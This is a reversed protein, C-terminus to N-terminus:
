KFVAKIRDQFVLTKNQDQARYCAKRLTEPNMRWLNGFFKWCSPIHLRDAMYQALVGREAQSLRIPQWDKNLLGTSVLRDLVDHAEPSDLEPHEAYSVDPTNRKERTPETIAESQMTQFTPNHITCDKFTLGYYYHNIVTSTEKMARKQSTAPTQTKTITFKDMKIHNLEFGTNVKLPAFTCAIDTQCRFLHSFNDVHM